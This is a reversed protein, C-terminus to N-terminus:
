RSSQRYKFLVDVRAPIDRVVCLQITLELKPAVWSKIHPKTIGMDIGLTVEKQYLSLHTQSPDWDVCTALHLLLESISHSTAIIIHTTDPVTKLSLVPM